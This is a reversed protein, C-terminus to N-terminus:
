EEFLDLQNSIPLKVTISSGGSLSSVSLLGGYFEVISQIIYLSLGSSDSRSRIPQRHKGFRSRISSAEKPLIAGGSDKVRMAVFEGTLKTSIDISSGVPAYKISSSVIHMLLQYVSSPDALVPPLKKPTYKITLDKEGIKDEHTEIVSQLESQLQVPQLRQSSPLKEIHILSEILFGLRKSAKSIHRVQEKQKINLEGYSETELMSSMGHILTLPSKLEHVTAAILELDNDDKHQKIVQKIKQKVM